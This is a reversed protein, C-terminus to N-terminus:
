SLNIAKHLRSATYSDLLHAVIQQSNKLCMSQKFQLLVFLHGNKTICAYCEACKASHKVGDVVKAPKLRCAKELMRTAQERFFSILIGTLQKSLFGTVHIFSSHGAKELACKNEIQCISVKLLYPLHQHM